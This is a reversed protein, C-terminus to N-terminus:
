KSGGQKLAIGGKVPDLIITEGAGLGALVEIEGDGVAEGLRLQRLKLGSAEQVYIAAVEGRRVVASAPVTLKVAKGIVFHARAAMGPVVDKLDAPLNVRLQATHTAADAAPLLQVSASDVRKGLEPFEVQASKVQRLQALRYQPVDVTVRLSAPDYVTVLPRGPAAMEGLETLRKAVLGSLPSTITGRSQGAGAGAAGAQAADLDAKAKDLAAQSLFNQQRLNRAREYNARANILAAQAAATAEAAEQVDLRMLVEGKKVSQGADVRMDVVRGAVQAAVTAQHLAEVVGEAPLTLSVERAQVVRSPLAGSPSSSTNASAPEGAAVATASFLALLLLPLHLTKM